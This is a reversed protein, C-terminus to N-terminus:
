NPDLPSCNPTGPLPDKYYCSFPKDAPSPESKDPVTTTRMFKIKPWISKKEADAFSIPMPRAAQGQGNAAFGDPLKFAFGLCGKRPCDLDKMAWGSCVKGAQVLLDPNAKVAPSDATLATVCANGEPKCFTRPQCLDAASPLLETLGAFDISVTLVGNANSELKLWAPPKKGADDPKPAFIVPASALNGRVEYLNEATPQFGDGVYIQLTLKTTPKAYVFYVYYTKNKEFLNVDRHDLPPPNNNFHENQQTALPITTDLYYSGNSAVLTERQYLNAGAMRIFPWRCQPEGWYAKENCKNQWWHKWEGAADAV